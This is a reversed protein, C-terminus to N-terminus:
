GWDFDAGDESAESAGDVSAGAGSGADDFGGDAEGEAWAADDDLALDEGGGAWDDDEDMAGLDGHDGGAGAWGDARSAPGSVESRPTADASVRVAGGRGAAGSADDPGQAAGQDRASVPTKADAHTNAALIAIAKDADGGAAQVASRAQLRQVSSAEPMRGLVQAANALELDPHRM